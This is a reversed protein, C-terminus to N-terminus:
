VQVKRLGSPSRLFLRHKDLDLRNLENGINEMLNPYSSPSFPSYLKGLGSINFATAAGHSIALEIEKERAYLKKTKGLLHSCFMFWREPPAPHTREEHPGNLLIKNEFMHMVMTTSFALTWLGHKPSAFTGDNFCYVSCISILLSAALADAEAELAVSESSSIHSSTASDIELYTNKGFKNSKWNVHGLLIHALEHCLIFSTSM